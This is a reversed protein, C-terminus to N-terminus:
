AALSFQPEATIITILKKPGTQKRQLYRIAAQLLVVSDKFRGLGRNCNNCLLGRVTGDKHDHDVALKCSTGYRSRHGDLRGCIACRGDQEKLLKEYEEVTSGQKALAFTQNARALCARCQYKGGVLAPFEDLSKRVHCRRCEASGESVYKHRARHAGCRILHRRVSDFTRGTQRAVERISLGRQFLQVIRDM